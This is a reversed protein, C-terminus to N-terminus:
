VAASAQFLVFDLGLLLLLTLLMVALTSLIQLGSKHVAVM